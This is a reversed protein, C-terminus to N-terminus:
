QTLDIKRSQLLQKWRHIDADVRARMEAPSSTAPDFGLGLFRERVDPLAMIERLDRNLQVVIAQPIGAPAAIGMWTMVDFGPVVEGIAPAEPLMSLRERSTVGLVKLKGAQIEGRVTSLAAITFDVRGTLVDAMAAAAGKYPVDVLEVGATAALLEGALHQTSGKGPTAYRVTGPAKRAAELVSKLSSMTTTANAAVVFPYVSLTSIFQLDRQLNYPLKPESAALVTDGGVVLGFTSGDPASKTVADTALRGGAGGKNEVTVPHGYKKQLNAAVIRAAVDAAGGPAFGVIIRVPKDPWAHAAATGFLAAALCAVRLIPQPRVNRNFM